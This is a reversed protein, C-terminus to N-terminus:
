KYEWSTGNWILDNGSSCAMKDGKTLSVPSTHNNICTTNYKNDKKFCILAYEKCKPCKLYRNEKEYKTLATAVVKRTKCRQNSCLIVKGCKRAPANCKQCKHPYPNIPKPKDKIILDNVIVWWAETFGCLPYGGYRKPLYVVFREYDAALIYTDRPALNNWDPCDETIYVERGVYQEAEEKTM